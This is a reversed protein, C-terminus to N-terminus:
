YIHEDEVSWNQSDDDSVIPDYIDEDEPFPDDDDEASSHYRDDADIDILCETKEEELDKVFDLFKPLKEQFWKDDYDIMHIQLLPQGDVNVVNPYYYLLHTEVLQACAMQFQVQQIHMPKPKKLAKDQHICKVEVNIGDATVADLSAALKEYVPHEIPPLDHIIRFGTMEAYMAVAKAENAHGSETYFNGQFPVKIGLKEELLSQRSKVANGTIKFCDSATLRSRRWTLWAATNQLPATSSLLRAISSMAIFSFSIIFM